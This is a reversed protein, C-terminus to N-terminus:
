PRFHSGEEDFLGEHLQDKRFGLGIDDGLFIVDQFGCAKMKGYFLQNCCDVGKFADVAFDWALIKVEIAFM